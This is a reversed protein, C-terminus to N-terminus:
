RAQKSHPLVHWWDLSQGFMRWCCGGRPVGGRPPGGLPLPRGRRAACITCSPESIVVRMTVHSSESPKVAALERLLRVSAVSRDKKLARWAPREWRSRRASPLRKQFVNSTKASTHGPLHGGMGSIVSPAASVCTDSESTRSMCASGARCAECAAAQPAFSEAHLLM